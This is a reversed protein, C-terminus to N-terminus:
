GDEVASIRKMKGHREVDVLAHHAVGRLGVRLLAAGSGHEFDEAVLLGFWFTEQSIPSSPDSPGM